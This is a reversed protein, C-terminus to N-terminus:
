ARDRDGSDRSEREGPVLSIGRRRVTAANFASPRTRQVPAAERRHADPALKWATSQALSTDPKV